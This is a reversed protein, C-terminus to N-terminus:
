RGKEPNYLEVSTDPFVNALRTVDLIVSPKSFIRTDKLLTQVL